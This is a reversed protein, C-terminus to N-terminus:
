HLCMELRRLKGRTIEALAQHPTEPPIGPMEETGVVEEDQYHEQRVRTLNLEPKLRPM